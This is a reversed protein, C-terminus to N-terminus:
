RRQGRATRFVNREGGWVGEACCFLREDQSCLPMYPMYRIITLPAAVSKSKMWLQNTQRAGSTDLAHGVGSGM